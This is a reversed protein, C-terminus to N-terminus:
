LPRGGVAPRFRIGSRSLIARVEREREAPYSIGYACGRRTSSSDAKVVEARIMADALVREAHMAQTMSGIIAIRDNTQEHM